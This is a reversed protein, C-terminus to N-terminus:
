MDFPQETGAKKAGCPARPPTINQSLDMWGLWASMYTKLTEFLEIRLLCWGFLELPNGFPRLPDEIWDVWDVWPALNDTFAQAGFARHLNYGNWNSSYWIPLPPHSSKINVLSLMGGGTCLLVAAICRGQSSQYRRYGCHPRTPLDVLKPWNDWIFGNQMSIARKM